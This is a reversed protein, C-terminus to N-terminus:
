RSPRHASSWEARRSWRGPTVRASSTSRDHGDRMRSRRGARRAASQHPARRRWRGGAEGGLRIRPVAREPCLERRISLLRSRCGTDVDCRRSSAPLRARCSGRASSGLMDHHADAWRGSPRAAVLPAGSPSADGDASPRAHASAKPGRTRAMGPERLGGIASPTARQPSRRALCPAGGFGSSFFASM